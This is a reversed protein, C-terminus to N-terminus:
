NETGFLISIISISVIVIKNMLLGDHKACRFKRLYEMNVTNNTQIQQKIMQMYQIETAAFAGFTVTSMIVVVAAGTIVLVVVSVEDSVVGFVVFSPIFDVVGLLGTSVVVSIKRSESSIYLSKDGVCFQLYIFNM